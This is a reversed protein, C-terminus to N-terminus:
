VVTFNRLDPVISQLHWNDILFVSFCKETNETIKNAVPVLKFNYGSHGTTYNSFQYTKTMGLRNRYSVNFITLIWLVYELRINGDYYDIRSCNLELDFWAKFPERVDALPIIINGEAFYNSSWVPFDGLIDFYVYEFNNNYM